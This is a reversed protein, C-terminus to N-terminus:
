ALRGSGIRFIWRKYIRSLLPDPLFRKYLTAKARNIATFTTM